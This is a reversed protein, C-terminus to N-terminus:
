ADKAKNKLKSKFFGGMAIATAAGLLTLPEPVSESPSLTLVRLPDIGSHITWNLKLTNNSLFQVEDLPTWSLEEELTWAGRHPINTADPAFLNNDPYFLQNDGILAVIEGSFKVTAEAEIRETITKPKSFYIMHSDVVTGPNLFLLDEVDIDDWENLIQHPIAQDLTVQQEEDFGMFSTSRELPNYWFNNAESIGSSEEFLIAAKASSPVMTLLLATGTAINLSFFLSHKLM